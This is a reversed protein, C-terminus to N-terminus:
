SALFGLWGTHNTAAGTAFVKYQLCLFPRQVQDYFQFTTSVKGWLEQPFITTRNLTQHGAELPCAMHTCLNETIEFVTVFNMSVKIHVTGNLITEPVYFSSHMYVQQGAAVSSPPDIAMHNIPFASGCDLLSAVGEPPLLFATLAFLALIMTYSKQVAMGM